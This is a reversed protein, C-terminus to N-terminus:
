PAARVHPTPPGRPQGVQRDPRSHTRGQQVGGAARGGLPGCIQQYSGANHGGHRGRSGPQAAATRFRVRAMSVADDAWNLNCPLLSDPWTPWQTPKPSLLVVAGPRARLVPTRLQGSSNRLEILAIVGFDPRPLSIARGSAALWISSVAMARSSALSM